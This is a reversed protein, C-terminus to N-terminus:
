NKSPPPTNLFDISRWSRTDLGARHWWVPVVGRGFRAAGLEEAGLRAEDPQFV